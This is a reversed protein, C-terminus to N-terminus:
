LLCELVGEANMIKKEIKNRDPEQGDLVKKVAEFLVYSPLICIRKMEAYDIETPEFHKRNEVSKPYEDRRFQNTIFIGKSTKKDIVFREDVWKSCQSIDKQKTKGNAGKVEIVGYKFKDDCTCEFVWDERNDERIQKIEEFGLLRFADAVATELGFGKEWLLRSHALIKDREDELMDIDAQIANKQSQLSRIKHQKEEATNIKLKLIWEPPPEDHSTTKGYKSLIKGIAEENPETPPPLFVLKGKKTHTGDNNSISIHFSGGLPHGANDSIKQDEIQLCRPPAFLGDSPLLSDIDSPAFEVVFAFKEVSNLYESFDHNQSSIIKEGEYTEMIKVGIPLLSYNSHPNVFLHKTMIVIITGGNIFKDTVIKRVEVIDGSGFTQLAEETLTTLDVILVDPDALNPFPQSWMISRDAHTHANGLVWVQLETM